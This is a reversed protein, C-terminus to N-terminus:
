IEAYSMASDDMEPGRRASEAAEGDVSTSPTASPKEVVVVEEGAYVKNEAPQDPFISTEKKAM